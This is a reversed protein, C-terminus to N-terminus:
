QYLLVFHFPISYSSEFIFFNLEEVLRKRHRQRHQGTGMRVSAAHIGQSRVNAKRRICPQNRKRGLHPRGDIHQAPIAPAQGYM